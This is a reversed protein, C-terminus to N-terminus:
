KQKWLSWFMVSLLERPFSILLSIKTSISSKKLQLGYGWEKGVNILKIAWSFCLYTTKTLMMVSLVLHQVNFGVRFFDHDTPTCNHGQAMLVQNEITAQRALNIELQRRRRSVNFSWGGKFESFCYKRSCPSCLWVTDFGLTVGYQYIM